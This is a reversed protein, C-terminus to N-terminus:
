VTRGFPWSRRRIVSTTVGDIGVPRGVTAADRELEIVRLALREARDPEHVRVAASDDIEGARPVATHGLRREGRVAAPDHELAVVVNRVDVRDPAHVQRAPIPV